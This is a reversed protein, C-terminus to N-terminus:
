NTLFATPSALITHAKKDAQVVVISNNGISHNKSVTLISFAKCFNKVLKELYHPLLGCRDDRVLLRGYMCSQLGQFGLIFPVSWMQQIGEVNKPIRFPFKDSFLAKFVELFQDM